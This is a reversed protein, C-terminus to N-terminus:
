QTTVRIKGEEFKDGENIILNMVIDELNNIMKYQILHSEELNNIVQNSEFDNLKNDLLIRSKNLENKHISEMFKEYDSEEFIFSSLETIKQLTQKDM